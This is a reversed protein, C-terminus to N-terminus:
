STRDTVIAGFGINKKPLAVHYLRFGATTERKEPNNEALRWYMKVSGRAKFARSKVIITSANRDTGAVATGYAVKVNSANFVPNYNSPVITFGYANTIVGKIIDAVLGKLFDTGPSTLLHYQHENSLVLIREGSMSPVQLDNLTRQARALDDWILRKKGTGDDTGTTLLVPTNSTNSAVTLSHLAVKATTEELVLRHQEIVSGIKDYTLAYLEDDTIKTNTTDFKRLAVSIDLDDRSATAIDYTTNDILVEPDAGVENLHIVNNGVYNNEDPILELWQGVYRFKTILQGTFLEKLVTPALLGHMQVSPMAGLAFGLGVNTAGGILAADVSGTFIFVALTAFLFNFLTKM